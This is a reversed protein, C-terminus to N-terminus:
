SPPGVVVARDAVRAMLQDAIEIAVDAGLDSLIQAVLMDKIEDATTAGAFQPENAANRENVLEAIHLAHGSM